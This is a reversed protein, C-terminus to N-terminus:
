MLTELRDVLEEFVRMANEVPAPGNMDVGAIKLLEIPDDSDGAKLFHLYDRVAAYGESLMKETLATAASYGTAYKYVYFARYFHPIRAWEMRIADDTVVHRGFYKGNLAGYADCLFDATLVDGREVADHTIREFEAFMTQRFLTTRFEEIYMNVLYRQDAKAPRTSLLHHM